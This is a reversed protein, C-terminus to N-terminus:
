VGNRQLYLQATAVACVLAMSRLAIVQSSYGPVPRYRLLEGRLAAVRGVDDHKPSSKWSHLAHASSAAAPLDVIRAQVLSQYTACLLSEEGELSSPM